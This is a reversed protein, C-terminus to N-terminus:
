PLALLNPVALVTRCADQRSYPWLPCILIKAHWLPPFAVVFWPDERQLGLFSSAPHQTAQASVPLQQSLFVGPLPKDCHVPHYGEKNFHCLLSDVSMSSAWLCLHVEVLVPAMEVQFVLQAALYDECWGFTRFLIHAVPIHTYVYQVEKREGKRHQDM